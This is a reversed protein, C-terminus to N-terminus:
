PEPTPTPTPTPYEGGKDAVAAAVMVEVDDADQDARLIYDDGDKLVQGDPFVPGLYEKVAEYQEKSIEKNEVLYLDDNFDKDYPGVFKTVKHTEGAM